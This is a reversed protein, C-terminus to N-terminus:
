KGDMVAQIEAKNALLVDVKTIEDVVVLNQLRTKETNLQEMEANIRNQGYHETRYLLKEGSLTYFFYRIEVHNEGVKVKEVTAKKLDM